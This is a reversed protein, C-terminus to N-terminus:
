LNSINVISSIRTRCLSIQLVRIKQAILFESSNGIACFACEKKLRNMAPKERYAAATGASVAKQDGAVFVPDASLYLEKRRHHPQIRHLLRRHRHRPHLGLRKLPLDPDAPDCAHIKARLGDRLKGSLLQSHHCVGHLAHNRIFWGSKVSYEGLVIGAIVSLPTTLMSPTNVAALRLGDIAFELILLQFILPVYMDDALKIFELWGPIWNQNQMFLLWVPTLFLTLFSVTMRSLRLYTGTVPPFYYDDAEEIIDFVSSPLIMCAPSNDVLIVINGELISAAATDPRESFRFKPFPNFWKHPFICEALSEQNMTLADVHLNEIRDKIKNLLDEDVRRKMYCIAIDTHSSEGTQMIEVTLNVDRIRRRILATNFILTEVFGDRSGRLVKDKEPESVGRAPYTRCDILIARDYGDILLCSLGSLLQTFINKDDTEVTTEGYHVYQKAFDHASSPFSDPKVSAFDQMLRLLIEDKTFGDIFYLCAKKDAITLTHYVIDFNKQVDLIEHFRSINQDFNSSINM